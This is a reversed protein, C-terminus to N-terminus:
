RGGNTRQQPKGTGLGFLEAAARLVRRQQDPTLGQLAQTVEATKAALNAPPPHEADSRKTDATKNENAM